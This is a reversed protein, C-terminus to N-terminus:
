EEEDKFSEFELHSLSKPTDELGLIDITTGIYKKFDDDVTFICECGNVEAMALIMADYKM